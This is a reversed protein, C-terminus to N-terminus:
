DPMAPSSSLIAPSRRLVFQAIVCSILAATAVGLLMPLPQDKPFVTMLATCLSGVILQTAGLLASGAGAIEGHRDMALVGTCPMILGVFAYGGFLLVIMLVLSGAGALFLGALVSMVVACCIAATRAVEALGFRRALRSAFQSSGIFAAANLAFCLSFQSPRLGYHGILVFPANTLYIFFTTMAFAGIMVTGVFGRDRVLVGYSKFARAWTADARQHAERTEKLAFVALSLALLATAMVAWFVWRWGLTEIIVSGTLPALIPSVSMVLLLLAMLRAADHGTHLDRVVARPVVMGACSGFAQVARCAILTEINPALACGISGCVFIVLGVYLPRKRGYIDALPGFVLQSLGVVIFFVSLSMQVAAPDAHLAGGIMPLAPLYMDIAFPGVATILGLVVALRLYARTM